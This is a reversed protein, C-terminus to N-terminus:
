LIQRYEAPAKDRRSDSYEVDRGNGEATCTRRIMERGIDDAKRYCEILFIEDESFEPPSKEPLGLLKDSSVNLCQCVSALKDITPKIGKNKWSYFTSSAINTEKSITYFTMNKKSMESELNELFLEQRTM